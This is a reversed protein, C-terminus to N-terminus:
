AYLYKGLLANQVFEFRGLVIPGELILPAMMYQNGVYKIELHIKQIWNEAWAKGYVIYAIIWIIGFVANAVLILIFIIISSTKGMDGTLYWLGSYCTVM